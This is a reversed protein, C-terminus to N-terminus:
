AQYMRYTRRADWALDDCQWCPNRVTNAAEALSRHPYRKNEHRADIGKGAMVLGRRGPHDLGIRMSTREMNARIDRYRGAARPIWLMSHICAVACFPLDRCTEADTLVLEPLLSSYLLPSKIQPCM